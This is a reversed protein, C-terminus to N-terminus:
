PIYDLTITRLAELQARLGVSEMILAIVEDAADAPSDELYTIIEERSLFLWDDLVPTVACSRKLSPTDEKQFEEVPISKLPPKTKAKSATPLSTTFSKGASPQARWKSPPSGFYMNDYATEKTDRVAPLKAWDIKLVADRVDCLHKFDLYERNSHQDYYGVGINTCEPIVSRYVKTDTFVGRSSTEYMLGPVATNIAKALAEGFEDSCCRQGGQHTIVEFDRPRDFAIAHKWQSLWGQNKLLVAKSGIGGLEEGRHFIYGGPIGAEIMQLMLWVGAGDDAGLCSGAMPDPVSRPMNKPRDMVDLAIHGMAADYVLGNLASEGMSHVTDIHCSFLSIPADGLVVTICQEALLVPKHGMTKLKALLWAHFEREKLGGHGRPQQLIHLLDAIGKDDNDAAAATDVVLVTPEPVEAVVLESVVSAVAGKPAVLKVDNSETNVATGDLSPPSSFSM